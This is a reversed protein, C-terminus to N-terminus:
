LPQSVFGGIPALRDPRTKALRKGTTLWNPQTLQRAQDLARESSLIQPPVACHCRRETRHFFPRLVIAVRVPLEWAASRREVIPAAHWVPM